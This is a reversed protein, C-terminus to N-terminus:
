GDDWEDEDDLWEDEGDDWEDGGAEEDEGGYEMEDDLYEDEAMMEIVRDLWEKLDKRSAMGNEKEGGEWDL